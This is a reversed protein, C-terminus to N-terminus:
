FWSKFFGGETLRTGGSASQNIGVASAYVLFGNLFALLWKTWETSTALIAVLFSLMISIAFSVWKAYPVFKDGILNVLVSPVLLAAAASGQLSLLSTLTFLSNADNANVQM